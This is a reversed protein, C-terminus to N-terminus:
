LRLNLNLFGPESTESFNRLCYCWNLLLVLSLKMEFTLNQSARTYNTKFSLCSNNNKLQLDNRRHVRGLVVVQHVEEHLVALGEKQDASGAGAFGNVDFVKEVSLQVFVLERGGREVEGAVRRGGPRLVDDHALQVLSSFTGLIQEIFSKGNQQKSSFTPIIENEFLEFM